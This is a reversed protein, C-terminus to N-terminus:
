SGGTKVGVTIAGTYGSGTRSTRVIATSADAERFISDDRNRTDPAGRASYPAVKSVAATTADEFYLQGTHVVRGGAHVKMHVHVARGPYWGPYITDFRSVGDSATLQTGRLFTEGDRRSGSGFGSYVGEADCHWVDVAAAAIPTCAKADVVTIRLDLPTGPRGETIDPRVKDIDLFYPGETAEPTLVCAPATSPGSGVTSTASGSSSTGADRADTGSDGSCAAVAALGLAALAVFAERRSLVPDGSQLVRAL